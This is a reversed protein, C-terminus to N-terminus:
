FSRLNSSQDLSGNKKASWDFNEFFELLLINVKLFETIKKLYPFEGKEVKMRCWYSYLNLVFFSFCKKWCKWFIKRVTKFKHLLQHLNGLYHFAYTIILNKNTRLIGELKQKLNQIINQFIDRINISSFIHFMYNTDIISIISPFKKFYWLIFVKKIM